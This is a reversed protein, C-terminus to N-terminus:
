RSLRRGLAAIGFPQRGRGFGRRAHLHRQHGAHRGAGPVDGVALQQVYGTFNSVNLQDLKQTGLAQIAIPVNQLNESRKQATVIIVNPDSNEAASQPTEQAFVSSSALASGALLALRSFSRFGASMISGGQDSANHSRNTVRLLM